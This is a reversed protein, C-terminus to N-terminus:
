AGPNYFTGIGNYERYLWREATANETLWSFMTPDTAFIDGTFIYLTHPEHFVQLETLNYAGYEMTRATTNNYYYDLPLRNYNPIVVITDGPETANYLSQSYGRWDEKSYSTYYVPLATLFGVVLLGILIAPVLFKNKRLTCSLGYAILIFVIPLLVILYRPLMPISFSLVISVLFGALLFVLFAYFYHREKKYVMYFGLVMLIVLYIETWINFNGITFLTNQVLDLGKVGYTPATSTRKLFLGVTVILLPFTTIIFIGITKMPHLIKEKDRYAWLMLLFMPAIVITAYFHTWMALSAFVGTLIWDATHNRNFARICFYLSLSVFLLLLTYARAEQSYFIHFQSLTLILAAIIGTLNDKLETGILYFVPITLIGAISPIVRLIFESNGLALMGHEIWYFLPPNFEGATTLEWIGSLSRQAYSYTATEDLWLSNFALNYIRLFAGILILSALTIEV